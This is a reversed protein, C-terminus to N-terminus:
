KIKKMRVSRGTRAITFCEGSGQYEPACCADTPDDAGLPPAWQLVDIEDIPLVNASPSATPACYGAPPPNRVLETICATWEAASGVPCTNVAYILAGPRLHGALASGQPVATVVGRLPVSFLPFLIPRPCTLLLVCVACLILNHWVGGAFVSLAARHPVRCVHEDIDVFFGPFIGYVFLGAGHVDVGNAVAALAHGLEHVLGAVFVAAALYFVSSLPINVGPVVPSVIQRTSAEAAGGAAWGRLVLFPNAVLVCAAAGMLVISAVGGVRYFRQAGHRSFNQGLETITHNLRTTHYVTSLPNM